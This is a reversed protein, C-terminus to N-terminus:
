PLMIILAYIRVVPLYQPRASSSASLDYLIEEPVLKPEEVPQVHISALKQSNVLAQYTEHCAPKAKKGLKPTAKRAQRTLAPIFEELPPEYSDNSWHTKLKETRPIGKPVAGLRRIYTLAEQTTEPTEDYPDLSSLSHIQSLAVFPDPLLTFSYPDTLPIPKLRGIFEAVLDETFVVYNTTLYTLSYEYLLNRIHQKFETSELPDTDPNMPMM